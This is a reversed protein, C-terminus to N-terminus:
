EDDGETSIGMDEDEGLSPWSLAYWWDNIRKCAVSDVKLPPPVQLVFEELVKHKFLGQLADLTEHEDLVELM